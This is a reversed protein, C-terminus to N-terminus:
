RNASVRSRKSQPGRLWNPRDTWLREVRYMPAFALLVLPYPFGILMTALIGVHMLWAAVVWITRVRGGLLAVPAMLEIVITSAAALPLVWDSRVTWGALPARMTGLLDARTAAYAVHNRLTDGLMWDFGGYRLKAIGAIVYTTVTVLGALAIPWGYATSSRSAGGAAGRGHHRADLSWADSSPALAIILLHLVILNEFHLLQGWSGRYSGLALMGLAFLPGTIRFRWGVVFGVGAVLTGAIVGTIVDDPVPGDLLLAPGVGEFGSERRRLQLFVPMRILLYSLTFVGALIRLMALRQPPAAVDVIPWLRWRSGAMSTDDATATM